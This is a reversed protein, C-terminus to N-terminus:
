YSCATRVHEFTLQSLDSKKIFLYVFGCDGFYIPSASGNDTKQCAEYIRVLPTYENKEKESFTKEQACIKQWGYYADGAVVGAFDERYFNEKEVLMCADDYTAWLRNVMERGTLSELDLLGPFDYGNKWNLAREEIYLPQNLHAPPLVPALRSLPVDCYLVRAFPDKLFVEDEYIYSATMDLFVYLMGKRPILWEEASNYPIEACNIQCIFSLPKGEHCPWTKDEPLYPYGGVKSCGPEPKVDRSIFMYAAQKCFPKVWRVFTDVDSIRTKKFHTAILNFIRNKLAPNDQYYVYYNYTNGSYRGLNRGKVIQVYGAYFYVEGIEEWWATKSYKGSPMLLGLGEESVMTRVQQKRSKYYGVLLLCFLVAGFLFAMVLYMRGYVFSHNVFCFASFGLVFLWLLNISKFNLLRIKLFRFLNDPVTSGLAEGGADSTPQLEKQARLISVARYATYLLLVIGIVLNLVLTRDM